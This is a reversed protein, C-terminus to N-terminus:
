YYGCINVVHNSLFIYLEILLSFFTKTEESPRLSVHLRRQTLAKNQKM